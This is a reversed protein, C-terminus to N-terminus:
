QVTTFYHAKVIVSVSYDRRSSKKRELMLISARSVDLGNRNGSHFGSSIRLSKLLYSSFGSM